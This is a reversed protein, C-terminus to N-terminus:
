DGHHKAPNLLFTVLLSADTIAQVAHPEEAELYLLDGPQMNLSEGGREFTVQGELCQVTIVDPARHEEIRKGAPLVLRLLELRDTKALTHSRTEALKQGLPRIDILQGPSAHPIAM